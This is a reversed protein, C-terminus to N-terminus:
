GPPRAGRCARGGPTAAGASTAARTRRPSAGARRETCPRGRRYWHASARGHGGPPPAPPSRRAAISRTRRHDLPRARPRDTSRAACSGRARAHARRGRPDWEDRRAIVIRHQALGLPQGGREPKRRRAPRTREGACERERVPVDAGPQQDDVRRQFGIRQGPAEGPPARVPRPRPQALFELLRRLAEDDERHVVPRMRVHSEIRMGGVWAHRLELWGIRLGQGRNDGLDLGAAVVQADHAQEAVFVAPAPQRQEVREARAKRPAARGRQYIVVAPENTSMSIWSWPPITSVVRVSAGTCGHRGDARPTEFAPARDHGTGSAADAERDRPRERVLSGVDREDLDVLFPEVVGHSRSAASPRATEPKAPSAVSGSTTARSASAM